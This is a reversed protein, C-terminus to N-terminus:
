IKKKFSSRSTCEEFVRFKDQGKGWRARDNFRVRTIDTNMFSIGSLDVINFLIKKGEEFLVYNFYAKDM